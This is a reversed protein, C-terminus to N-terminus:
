VRYCESDGWGFSSNTAKDSMAKTPDIHPLDSKAQLHINQTIM